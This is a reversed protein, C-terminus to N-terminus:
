GRKRRGVFAFVALGAGFLAMTTPEPVPSGPSLSCVVLVESWDKVWHESLTLHEWRGTREKKAITERDFNAPRCRTLIERDPGIISQGDLALSYGAMTGSSIGEIYSDYVSSDTCHHWKSSKNGGHKGGNLVVQDWQWIDKEIVIDGETHMSVTETHCEWSGACGTKVSAGSGASDVLTANASTVTFLLAALALIEKKM